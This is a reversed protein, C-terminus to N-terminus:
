RLTTGPAIGGGRVGVGAHAGDQYLEISRAVFNDSQGTKRLANTLILGDQSKAIAAEFSWRFLGDIYESVLFRSGSPKIETAYRHFGLAPEFGLGLVVPFVEHAAYPSTVVPVGAESGAWSLANWGWGEFYDIEEAGTYSWFGPDAGGLDLPWKCYCEAVLTEQGGYTYEFSADTNGGGCTYSHTVGEVTYSGPGSCLLELGEPGVRAQSRQEVAVENSNGCCGQGKERAEFTHDESLPKGFADAYAVHWGSSPVPVGPPASLAVAGGTTGKEREERERQEREAQERAEREAIEKAEREAREKAEREERERAEREERERRELEGEHTHKTHSYSLKVANSWHHPQYRPRVRYTVTAGAVAPPTDATGSVLVYRTTRGSTRSEVYQHSSATASWHLTGGSVWLTPAGREGAFRVALGRHRLNSHRASASGAATGLAALLLVTGVFLRRAFARRAAGAGGGKARAGRRAGGVDNREAVEKRAM